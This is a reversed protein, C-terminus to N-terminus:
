PVWVFYVIAVLLLGAVVVRDSDAAIFEILRKIITM